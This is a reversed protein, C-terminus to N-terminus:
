SNEDLRKLHQRLAFLDSRHLQISTELTAIALENRHYACDAQEHATILENLMQALGPRDLSLQEIETKAQRVEAETSAIEEALNKAQLAKSKAGDLFDALDREFKLAEGEGASTIEEAVREVTTLVNNM